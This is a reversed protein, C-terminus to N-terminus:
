RANQKGPPPVGFYDIRLHCFRSQEGAKSTPIVYRIEVQDNTVVVRDILLELLQRKQEFTAAALGAQIRQCFDTMSTALAALHAHQDVQHELQNEQTCLADLKTQLEVRRRQYEPLAIVARLYAETWRELQTTLSRRAQRLTERRAQLDQPLWHGGHARMLADSLTEPQMIVECLDQWVLDDLQGAPICRATCRQDRCAQIPDAKGRCIDDRYEPSHARGVCGLRCVGCSVLGRLLYDHTTNHRRAFQRNQALKAQVLDFQEQTVIAPITAVPIWQERPLAIHGGLKRGLPQLASRRSRAPVPRTRNVYVQGTYSPNMLMNRLTAQNWRTKGSPTLVKLDQLHKALGIM